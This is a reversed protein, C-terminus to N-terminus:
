LDEESVGQEQLMRRLTRLARFQLIRLAAQSKGMINGIEENSLGNIYKLILVQRYHEKLGKMATHLMERDLRRHIRETASAERRIDEINEDLVGNTQHSRYHDVVVNHAIRFIWASFSSQRKEYQHINEWTKLFVLETLDEADERGVRYYMYRYIPTVFLEYLKGFADPQGNQSSSVLREILAHKQKAEDEM